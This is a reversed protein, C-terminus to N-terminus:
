EIRFECEGRLYYERREGPGFRIKVSDPSYKEIIGGADLLVYSDDATRGWVSVKRQLLAAAFLEMDSSLTKSSSVGM